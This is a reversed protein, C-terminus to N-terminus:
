PQYGEPEYPDDSAVREWDHARPDSAWQILEEVLESRREATMPLAEISTTEMRMSFARMLDPTRGEQLPLERLRTTSGTM